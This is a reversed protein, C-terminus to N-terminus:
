WKTTGVSYFCLDEAGQNSLEKLCQEAAYGQTVVDDVLIVKKGRLYGMGALDEQFEYLKNKSYFEEKKDPSIKKAEVDKTKKLLNEKFTIRTGNENMIKALEKSISVASSNDDLRFNPVPVIINADFIGFNEKKAKVYMSLALLRAYFVQPKKNKLIHNTLDYKEPSGFKYPPLYWGVQWINSALSLRRRRDEGGPYGKWHGIDYDVYDPLFEHEFEFKNIGDETITIRHCDIQGKPTEKPEVKSSINYTM